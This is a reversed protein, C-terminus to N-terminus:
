GPILGLDGANHASAKDELKFFFYYYYLPPFPAYCKSTTRGRWLESSEFTTQSRLVLVSIAELSGYVYGVEWEKLNARLM